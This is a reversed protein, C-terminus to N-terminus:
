LPKNYIILSEHFIYCSYSRIYEIFDGWCIYFSCKSSSCLSVSLDVMATSSKLMSRAIIAFVHFSQFVWNLFEIQYCIYLGVSFAIAVWELTRAQLIGPVSSGPLFGIFDLSNFIVCNVQCRSDISFQSLLLSSASRLLDWPLFMM